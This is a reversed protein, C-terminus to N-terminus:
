KKTSTSTTISVPSNLGIGWLSLTNKDEFILYDDNKSLKMNVVDLSFPIQKEPDVILKNEGTQLNIRWIVDNFHMLGLYWDDPYLHDKPVNKPVACYVIKTYKNGWVCKEPLTEAPLLWNSSDKTGYLGLELKSDKTETYLINQGDNSALSTLGLLGGLIKKIDGTKTDLSYLYGATIGSPKTNLLISNQTTWQPLWERFPSNFLNVQAGGDLNSTVGRTGTNRTYFIKTKDPSLSAQTINLPLDTSTVNNITSTGQNPDPKLSLYRTQIGENGLINRIIVGDGSSNFFAEQLKPLTKNTIRDVTSTSSTGTELINGTAKSIFRIFEIPIIKKNKQALKIEATSTGTPTSSTSIDVNRVIFDHGAVPQASILRLLNQTNLPATTTATPTVTTTAGEGTYSGLDKGNKSSDKQSDLTAQDFGTFTPKAKAVPSQNLTNSRNLYFYFGLLGGLSLIIILFIAFVLKPGSM